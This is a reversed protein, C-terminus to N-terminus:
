RREEIKIRKNEMKERRGKDEGIDVEGSGDVDGCEKCSSFHIM